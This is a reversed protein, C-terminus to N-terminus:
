KEECVCVGEDNSQTLHRKYLRNLWFREDKEENHGKLDGNVQLYTGVSDEKFTKLPTFHLLELELSHEVDDWVANEDAWFM